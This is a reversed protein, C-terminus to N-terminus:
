GTGILDESRHNRVRAPMRISAMAFKRSDTRFHCCWITARCEGGIVSLHTQRDTQEAAGRDWWEFSTVYRLISGMTAFHRATKVEIRGGRGCSIM